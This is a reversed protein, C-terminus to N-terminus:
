QEFFFFYLCVKEQLFQEVKKPFAAQVLEKNEDTLLFWSGADVLIQPVDADDLQDDLADIPGDVRDSESQQPDAQVSTIEYLADSADPTARIWKVFYFQHGYRVKERQISHFKYQDCLLLNNNRNSAKERLFITSLM